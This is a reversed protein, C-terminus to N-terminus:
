GNYCVDFNISVPNNPDNFETHDVINGISTLSQVELWQEQPLYILNFCTYQGDHFCVSYTTHSHTYSGAITGECSYYIHFVLTKTVASWAQITHM